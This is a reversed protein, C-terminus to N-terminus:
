WPEGRFPGAWRSSRRLPTSQGVTLAHSPSAYDLLSRKVSELNVFRDDAVVLWGSGAHRGAYARLDHRMVSCNQPPAGASSACRLRM